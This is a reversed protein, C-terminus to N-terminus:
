CLKQISLIRKSYNNMLIAQLPLNDCFIHWNINKAIPYVNKNFNFSFSGGIADHSINKASSINYITTVGKFETPLITPSLITTTTKSVLVTHDGDDQAFTVSTSICTVLVLLLLIYLFKKM